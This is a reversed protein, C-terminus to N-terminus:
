LIRTNELDILLESFQRKIDQKSKIERHANIVKEFECHILDQMSNNLKNQLVHIINQQKEIRAVVQKYKEIDDFLTKLSEKELSISNALKFGNIDTYSMKLEIAYVYKNTLDCQGKIEGIDTQIKPHFYNSDDNGWDMEVLLGEPICSLFEDKIENWKKQKLEKKEM